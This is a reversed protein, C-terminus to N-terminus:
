SHHSHEPKSFSTSFKFLFISYICGIIVGYLHSNVIVPGGSSFESLPVAGIIQEYMLKIILGVILAGDAWHFKYVQKFIKLLVLYCLVLATIAHLLGSLGVYWYIDKDFNAFALSIALCAVLIFILWLRSNFLEGYWYWLILLVTLNLCLHTWGLHIFHASLLRWYEREVLANNQYRFLIRVEEPLTMLVTCM